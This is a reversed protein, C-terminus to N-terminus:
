PKRPVLQMGDTVRQEACAREALWRLLHNRSIGRKAAVVDLDDWLADPLRVSRASNPTTPYTPIPPLAM